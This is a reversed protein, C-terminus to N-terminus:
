RGTRSALLLVISIINHRRKPARKMACLRGGRDALLYGRRTDLLYGGRSSRKAQRVLFRCGESSGGRPGLHGSWKVDKEEDQPWAALLRM